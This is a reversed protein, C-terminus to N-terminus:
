FINPFEKVSERSQFFFRFDKFKTDLCPRKIPNIRVWLFDGLFVEMSFTNSFDYESPDEISM